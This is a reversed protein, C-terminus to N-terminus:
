QKEFYDRIMKELADALAAHDEPEMHLMDQGSPKAVSAADLYLWGHKQARQEYFHALQRSNEAADALFGTCDSNEIGDGIHIPSVLLVKPAEFPWYDYHEALKGLEEAGVAVDVPLLGFRHKLDNTGLMIIILDLPRHSHLATLLHTRGNKDVELTDDFVTTRGGCGEEIIRYEPGLQKQLRGTWRVEWPWRGGQPVWGYTNSDGFCLINILM